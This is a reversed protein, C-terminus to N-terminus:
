SLEPIEPSVPLSFYFKSGKGLESQLWIKGGLAGIIEKCISLGLGLGPYSTAVRASRFFRDFLRTQDEPSIGLGYDEVEVIVTDHEYKLRIHIKDAHPSYKSANRILNTMVQGLRDVDSTVKHGTYGEIILKQKTSYQASAVETHVFNDFEFETLKIDLKQGGKSAQYIDNVLVTAKHAAQSIRQIEKLLTDKPMNTAILDSLNEAFIHINGVPSRLEHAAIALFETKASNLEVLKSKLFESAFFQQVARALGGFETKDESLRDLVKPDQKKLSDTVQSVPRLVLRWISVILVLVTGVAFFLLLALERNYLGELDKVVPVQATSTLVRVTQGDWSPLKTGFTVSQRGLRDATTTNASDITLKSQTLDGLNAIYSDNLLRGVLWFGQPPTQRESDDGPHVTAARIEMVGYSGSIFFHEFHDKYLKQFFGKPLRLDLNQLSADDDETTKYYVLSYDPRYVWAAQAGYTALGTDINDTAFQLNRNKIFNVMEDWFSYDVSLTELPQGDVKTLKQFYQHRQSLENQLVSHSRDLDFSRQVVLLLAVAGFLFVFLLLFRAQLKM